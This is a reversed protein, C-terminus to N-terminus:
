ALSAGKSCSYLADTRTVFGAPRQPDNPGKGAQLEPEADIPSYLISCSKHPSGQDM